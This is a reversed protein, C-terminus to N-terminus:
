QSDVIAKRYEEPRNLNRFAKPDNWDIMEVENTGLLNQLRHEGTRVKKRVEPLISKPYLACLPAPGRPSRAMIIAPNQPDFREFIARLLEPPVFPM